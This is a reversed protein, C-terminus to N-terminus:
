IKQHTVEVCRTMQPLSKDELYYGHKVHISNNIAPLINFEVSLGSELRKGKVLEGLENGDQSVSVDHSSDLFHHGLSESPIKISSM